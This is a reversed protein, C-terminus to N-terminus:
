CVSSKTSPSLIVVYSEKPIYLEKPPWLCYPRWKTCSRLRIFLYLGLGGLYPLHTTTDVRSMATNRARWMPHPHPLNSCLPSDISDYGGVALRCNVSSASVASGHIHVGPVSLCEEHEAQRFSVCRSCMISINSRRVSASLTSTFWNGSTALRAVCIRVMSCFFFPNCSEEPFLLFVLLAM